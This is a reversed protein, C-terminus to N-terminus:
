SPWKMDGIYYALEQLLGIFCYRAINLFISICHPEMIVPDVKKLISLLVCGMAPGRPHSAHHKQSNKTQM